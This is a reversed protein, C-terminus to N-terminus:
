THHNHKSTCKYLRRRFNLYHFPLSNFSFLFFFAAKLWRKKGRERPLGAARAGRGRGLSHPGAKGAWGGARAGAVRAGLTSAWGGCSDHRAWRARGAASKGGRTV